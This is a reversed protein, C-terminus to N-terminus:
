ASFHHASKRSSLFIYLTFVLAVLLIRLRMRWVMRGVRNVTSAFRSNGPVAWRGRGLKEKEAFRDDEGSHNNFSPLSASLSRFRRGLFGLGSSPTKAYGNIEASRAQATAWTVNHGGNVGYSKPGRSRDRSPTCSGIELGPSAWGGARHPSPSRSLSMPNSNGSHEQAEDNITTLLAPDPRNEKNAISFTRQRAGLVHSNGTVSSARRRSKQPTAASASDTTYAM